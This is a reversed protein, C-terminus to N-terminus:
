PGKLIEVQQLDLYERNLAAPNTMLVGDIILAYNTEADRAGNIGRIAVQTDGVEAGMVISVGPTQGIFDEARHIGLSQIQSQSFASVSGPVDQISEARQRVTVVIETLNDTTTAAQGALPATIAATLLVLTKAGACPMVARTTKSM